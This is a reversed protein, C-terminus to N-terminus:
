LKLSSSVTRKVRQMSFHLVRLRKKVSRVESFCLILCIFSMYKRLCFLSHTFLANSDQSVPLQRILYGSQNGLSSYGKGM